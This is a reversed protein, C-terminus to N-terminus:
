YRIDCLIVGGWFMIIGGYVCYCVRHFDINKRPDVDTWFMFSSDSISHIPRGSIGYLVRLVFSVCGTTSYPSANKEFGFILVPTPTNNTIKPRM